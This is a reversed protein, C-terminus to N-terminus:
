ARQLTVKKMELAQARARFLDIIETTNNRILAELFINAIVECYLIVESLREPPILQAPNFNPNPAYHFELAAMGTYHMGNVAIAIIVAAVYKTVDFPYYPLVRFIIWMGATAAVFAIIVSLVVVVPRYVMDAEVRMSYMGLYHMALVALAISFGSIIIRWPKEILVLLEAIIDEVTLDPYISDLFQSEQFGSKSKSFDRSNPQLFSHPSEESHAISRTPNIDTSFRLMSSGAELDKFSDKRFSKVRPHDPSRSDTQSVVSLASRPVNASLRHGDASSSGRVGDSLSSNQKLDIQMTVHHNNNSGKQSEPLIANSGKVADSLSGTRKVDVNQSIQNEGEHISPTEVISAAEPVPKLLSAHERDVRLHASMRAVVNMVSSRGANGGKKNLKMRRAEKRARARETLENRDHIKQNWEQDQSAYYFAWTTVIACISASLVTYWFDYYVPIHVDTGPIYLTIATMGVFHMFFIARISTSLSSIILLSVSFIKSIPIETRGRAENLLITYMAGSFSIAISIVITVGNWQADLVQGTPSGTTLNGTTTQYGNPIETM